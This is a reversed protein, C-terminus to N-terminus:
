LSYPLNGCFPATCLHPQAPRHLMCHLLARLSHFAVTFQVLQIAKLERVLLLLGVVVIVIAIKVLMEVYVYMAVIGGTAIDGSGILGRNVLLHLPGRSPAEM